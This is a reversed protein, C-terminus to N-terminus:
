AKGCIFFAIGAIICCGVVGGVIGAILGVNITTLEPEYGPPTSSAYFKVAYRPNGPFEAAREINPKGVECHEDYGDEGEAACSAYRTVIVLQDVDPDAGVCFDAESL